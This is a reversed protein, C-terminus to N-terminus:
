PTCCTCADGHRDHVFITAVPFGLRFMRMWDSWAWDTTFPLFSWSFGLPLLIQIGFQVTMIIKKKADYTNIRFCHQFRKLDLYDNRTKSWSTWDFYMGLKAVGLHTILSNHVQLASRPHVNNCRTELHTAHQDIRRLIWSDEGDFIAVTKLNQLYM